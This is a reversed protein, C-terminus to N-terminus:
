MKSNIHFVSASFRWTAQSLLISPVALLPDFGALILVLSLITGYMMGLSSDIFECVFAALLIWIATEIGIM